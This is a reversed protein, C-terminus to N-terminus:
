ASGAAGDAPLRPAPLRVGDVVDETGTNAVAHWIGAPIFLGQGAIFPM